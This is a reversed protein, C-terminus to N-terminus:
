SDQAGQGGPRGGRQRELKGCWPVVRAVRKDGHKGLVLGYALEDHMGRRLIGIARNDLRRATFEATRRVEEAALHVRQQSRQLGPADLM